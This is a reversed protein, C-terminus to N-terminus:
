PTRSRGLLHLAVLGGLAIGCALGAFFCTYALAHIM